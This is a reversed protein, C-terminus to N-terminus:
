ISSCEKVQPRVDHRGTSREEESGSVRTIINPRDAYDLDDEM